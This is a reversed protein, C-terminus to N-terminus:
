LPLSFEIATGDKVKSSISCSGGILDMREIMSALGTSQKMATEVEFGKGFDHISIFLGETKWAFTISAQTTDAHMAINNLAEQCVRFLTIREKEPLDVEDGSVNFEVEIGYTSTYLKLYTKMASLLGLTTLTPPHLEVALLRVEQITKEMLQTMDEMYGKMSQDVTTEILQMGTYLSYLTQGVGEHLELAIRKLEQEQAQIIYSSVTNKAPQPKM